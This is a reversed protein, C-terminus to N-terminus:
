RSNQFIIWQKYDNKCIYSKYIMKRQVQIFRKDHMCEIYIISYNEMLAWFYKKQLFFIRM